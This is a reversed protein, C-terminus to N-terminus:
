KEVKVIEFGNNKLWKHFEKATYVCNKSDKDCGSCHHWLCNVSTCFEHDQYEILELIKDM